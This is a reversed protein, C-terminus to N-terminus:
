EWLAICLEDWSQKSDGPCYRRRTGVNLSVMSGVDEPRIYDSM